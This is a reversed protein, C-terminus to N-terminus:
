CAPHNSAEGNKDPTKANGVDHEHGYFLSRTNNPQLFGQTIIFNSNEIKTTFPEGVNDIITIGTNGVQRTDGASNIVQQQASLQLALLTLFIIKKM